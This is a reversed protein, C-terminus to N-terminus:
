QGTQSVSANVYEVMEDITGIKEIDEDLIEIGYQEQVALIVSFMGLSDIGQDALKLDPRLNEPAEVVKAKRIAAVIDDRTVQM